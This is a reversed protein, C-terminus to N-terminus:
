PVYYCVGNRCVMRGSRPAYSATYQPQYGYSQQYPQQYPQQYQPQFSPSYFDGGGNGPPPSFGGGGGNCSSYPNFGYSQSGSCSAYPSAGYSSGYQVWCTDRVNSEKGDAQYALTKIPTDRNIAGSPTLEVSGSLQSASLTPRKERFSSHARVISKHDGEYGRIYRRSGDSRVYMVIPTGQKLMEPTAKVLQFIAGPTASIIRASNDEQKYHRLLDRVLAVCPVCQSAGKTEGLADSLVATPDDTFIYARVTEPETNQAQSSQILTVALCLAVAAVTGILTKHRM